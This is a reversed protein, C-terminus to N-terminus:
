LAQTFSVYVLPGKFNTHGGTTDNKSDFYGVKFEGVLHDSFKHKVHATVTYEKVGAGYFTAAYGPYKFNDARYYTYQLSADTEKDVVLGTIFSGNIYNNDANRLVDNALGGAVPYATQVTNFVVNLNAQVYVQSSPSFDITEGFSFNKTDNSQMSTGSNVTVDMKGSQDIFRTTFSLNSQPKVIATLKTGFFEYGLVWGAGATTRDYYGNTHDKYFVEGRLTVAQSVMWNTGVKYHGHNEKVNDSSSVVSPLINSGSPSVGTSVGVEQGPSYRYDVTGYLSVNKIGTYRLDLEPVWSTENRSSYNPAALLVPTMAGTAQVILTNIYTVQNNGNMDLTEGKLALNMTFDKVPKYTFGLNGTFVNEKTSGYNTKYSYPPRGNAVYGGIASVVGAGTKLYLTIERDGVIDAKATQYNLGGFFSFKDSVTTDFKALYNMVHAKTGAADFGTNPNNALAPSIVTLPNAPIAPFPKLEGPYRNLYRTDLSDNQNRSVSVEFETSGVTHKMSAEFNQQRENLDMYSAVLKRNASVPNLASQSYIPIGTFDSDGWITSDKRGSRLENTYNFMFVPANPRAITVNAWFKARDTHLEESGLPMWAKNLPFFGGIGDYFTRFRKYGVDLSATENKSLKIQALYDESGSLARGDIEMTVDKTLDKSYHLAEIGYSGNEPAQFRRAYAAPNGTVSPSQGSVKIYSDFTPFADSPIADARGATGCLALALAAIVCAPRFSSHSAHM